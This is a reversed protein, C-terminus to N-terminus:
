GFHQTIAGTFEYSGDTAVVLYNDDDSLENDTCPIVSVQAFERSLNEATAQLVSLEGEPTVVNAIYLGGANLLNHAAQAGDECVLALDPTGAAFVDDVIVDYTSTTYRMFSLADARILHLRGTQETKFERMLDDLYFWRRAIRTVIPDIEVVDVSAADTHAIVHKPYAYGGGGLALLHGSALNAEHVVRDIARYYEFPLDYRRAGKYTGSQVTGNVVFLRVPEGVADYANFALAWGFATRPFLRPEYKRLAYVVGASVTAAAAVAGAVVGAIRLSRKEM